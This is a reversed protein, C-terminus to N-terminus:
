RRSLLWLLVVAVLAAVAAIAALRAPPLLEPQPAATSTVSVKEEVKGEAPKEAATSTPQPAASTTTTHTPSELTQTSTATETATPKQTAAPTQTQTAAEYRLELTKASIRGAADVATVTVTVTTPESVPPLTVKASYSLPTGALIPKFTYSKGGYSVTVKVDTIGWSDDTVKFSIQLPKGVTPKSPMMRELRVMPAAEDEKVYVTAQYKFGPKPSEDSYAYLTCGLMTCELKYSDLGVTHLRVENGLMDKPVPVAVVTRNVLSALATSNVTFLVTAAYPTVVIDAYANELNFTANRAYHPGEGLIELSGDASLRLLRFGHSDVERISGSTTVTVVYNITSGDPRTVEAYSNLHVHGSLVVVRKSPARFIADVLAYLAEKDQLWSTYIYPYESGPKMSLLLDYLERSSGVKFSYQVDGFMHTFHPHHMLIVTVPERSSLILEAAHEAQDKTLYGDSGSDIGVFRYLGYVSRAFTGPGRYSAYTNSGGVHDHNGPVGIIPKDLISDVLISMEYESPKATDAVDGTDAIITNPPLALALLNVVLSYTYSPRGNPNIVGYHRDTVHIVNVERFLQEDGVYVSNPEGFVGEETVLVLDYLGPEADPPVQVEVIMRGGDTVTGLITLAYRKDMGGDLYLEKLALPKSLTVRFSEGARVFFPASIKPEVVLGPVFEAMPNPKPVELRVEGKSTQAYALNLVLVASLLLIAAVSRKGKM